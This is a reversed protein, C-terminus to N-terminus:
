GLNKEKFQRPSLGEKRKFLRSFYYPDNFGLEYTLEKISINSKFLKSKAYNMKLMLFYQKPSFGTETKFRKRLLEYSMNETDAFKKFCIEKLCLNNKM